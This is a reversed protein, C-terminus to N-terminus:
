CRLDEVIVTETMMTPQYHQDFFVKLRDKLLKTENSPPKGKKPKECIVKMISTVFQRDIRPLPIKSDYCHIIYLKLFQLTHTMICNARLTAEMLKSVVIDDKVVSKLSTKICQYTRARSEDGPVPPEQM